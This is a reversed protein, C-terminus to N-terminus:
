TRATARAKMRQRIWVTVTMLFLLGAAVYGPLAADVQGAWGATLAGIAMGLSYTMNSLGYSISADLRRERGADTLLAVGPILFVPVACMLLVVLAAMPWMSLPLVLGLSLIAAAATGVIILVAVGVKDSIGGAIRAFVTNGAAAVLFTGGLVAPGAGSKALLIPMTTLMAGIAVGGVIMLINGITMDPHRFSRLALLLGGGESKARTPRAAEENEVRALGIVLALASFLGALIGFMLHLSMTLAIAGLVPGVVGGASSASTGLGLSKGRESPPATQTLWGLGAPWMIAGGIGQVFRAIFLWLGSESYGLGIAAIVALSGSVVIMRRAGFRSVAVGAPLSLLITALPNLAVFLGVDGQDLAFREAFMPIMPTVMTMQTNSLLVTIVIVWALRPIRM